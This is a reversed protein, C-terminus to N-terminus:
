FLGNFFGKAKTKRSKRSKRSKSKKVKINKMSKNFLNPMFTRSKINKVEGSTLSMTDEHIGHEDGVIVTKIGKGNKVKVLTEKVKKGAPTM